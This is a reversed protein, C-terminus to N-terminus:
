NGGDYDRDNEVTSAGIWTIVVAIAHRGFPAAWFSLSIFQFWCIPLIFVNNRHLFFANIVLSHFLRGMSVEVRTKSFKFYRWKRSWRFIILNVTATAFTSVLSVEKSLMKSDEIPCHLWIRVWAQLKLCM